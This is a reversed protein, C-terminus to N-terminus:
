MKKATAQMEQLNVSVNIANSMINMFSELRALAEKDTVPSNVIDDFMDWVKVVDKVKEPNTSYLMGYLYSKVASVQEPIVNTITIEERKMKKKESKRNTNNNQNYRNNVVEGKIFVYKVEKKKKPKSYQQGNKQEVEPSKTVINEVEKYELSDIMEFDINSHLIEKYKDINFIKVKKQKLDNSTKKLFSLMNKDSSYKDILKKVFTKGYSRNNKEYYGLLLVDKQWEDINSNTIMEINIKDCYLRTVLEKIMQNDDGKDIKNKVFNDNFNIFSNILEEVEKKLFINPNEKCEKYVEIAQEIENCKLLLELRQTQIYINNKFLPNNAIELAQKYRKMKILCKLRQSQIIDDNIFFDSTAIKEIEDYLGLAFYAKIGNSQIYQNNKFEDCNVIKQVEKYNKQKMLIGIKQSQIYEDYKYEEKNAINLAEEIQNTDILIKIKQSQFSDINKFDERDIIELAENYRKLKILCTVKQSQMIVKNNYKKNNVIELAEELRGTKIFVSLKKILISEVDAFKDDNCINLIDDYKKQRMLLNIKNLAEEVTM